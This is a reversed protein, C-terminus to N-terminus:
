FSLDDYVSRRQLPSSTRRLLSQERLRKRRRRAAARHLARHNLPLAQLASMLATALQRRLSVAAACLTLLVLWPVFGPVAPTNTLQRAPARHPRPAPTRVPASPHARRWALIAAKRQAIQPDFREIGDRIAAAALQRFSETALLAAERPNSLYAIEVTSTPMPAHTWWNDRLQIGDDAIGDSSL